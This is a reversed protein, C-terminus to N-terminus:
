VYKIYSLSATQQEFLFNSLLVVYSNLFLDRWTTSCYQTSPSSTRRRKEFTESARLRMSVTHSQVNAGLMVYDRSVDDEGEAM